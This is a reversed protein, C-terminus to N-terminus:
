AKAGERECKPVVKIGDKTMSVISRRPISHTLYVVAGITSGEGIVTDGGFIAANSYITVNDEITPHRKLGKLLRGKSLSLAGLTVGQYIKVHSGIICTEGIVIGTGHDIFFYDGIQAGPNIDIGTRHHADEAVYRALMKLNMEYLVHAIRYSLIAKFGPYELVVQQKSLAAPDGELIAEVTTDMLRRIEPIHSLFEDKTKEVDEVQLEVLMKKLKNVVKQYLESLEAPTFNPKEYDLTLLKKIDFFFSSALVEDLALLGPKETHQMIYLLEEEVNTM